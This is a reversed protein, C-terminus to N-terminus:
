LLLQKDQVLIKEFEETPLPKSFLYGQVENCQLQKLFALQEETEVGEAVVKLGMSKAMAIIATVIAADNLDDMVGHIFSRDIKITHVPFTKLYRLITLGNNNLPKILKAM